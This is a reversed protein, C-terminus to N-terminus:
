RLECIKRLVFSAFKVFRAFGLPNFKGPALNAGHSCSLDSNAPCEDPMLCRLAATVKVLVDASFVFGCFM